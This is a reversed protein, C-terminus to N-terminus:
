LLEVCKWFPVAMKSRNSARISSELADAFRGVEEFASGM